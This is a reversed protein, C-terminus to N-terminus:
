FLQLFRGQFIYARLTTGILINCPAALMDCEAGYSAYVCSDGDCHFLRIDCTFSPFNSKFYAKENTFFFFLFTPNRHVCIASYMVFSHQM